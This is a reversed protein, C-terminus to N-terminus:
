DVAACSALLMPKREAGAATYEIRVELRSKDTPQKESPGRRRAFSSTRKNRNGTLRRMLDSYAAEREVRSAERREATAIIQEQLLERAALQRLSARERKRAIKKAQSVAKPKRAWGRVRPDNSSASDHAINRVPSNIIKMHRIPQLCMGMPIAGLPHFYFTVTQCSTKCVLM